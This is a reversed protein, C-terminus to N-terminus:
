GHLDTGTTSGGVATFRIGGPAGSPLTAGHYARAVAHGLQECAMATESAVNGLVVGCGTGATTAQGLDGPAGSGFEDVVMADACRLDRGTLEGLEHYAWAADDPEDYGYWYVLGHGRGVVDAALELASQGAVGKARPDFPDVHVVARAGVGKGLWRATTAMGDVQAVEARDAGLLRAWERLDAASAEDLDCFLYAADPGLARMALLASGPYLAKARHLFPIVLELYHSRALEQYDSAAQVFHSVGFGREADDVMPYAASGAHTEAYRAPNERVLVEVLLLHKWVDAFNGFHRNTVGRHECAWLRGGDTGRGFTGGLSALSTAIASGGGVVISFDISELARKIM